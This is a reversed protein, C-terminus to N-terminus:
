VGFSEYQHTRTKTMRKMETKCTPCQCMPANQPTIKKTSAKGNRLTFGMHPQRRPMGSFGVFYKNLEECTHMDVIGRREVLAM